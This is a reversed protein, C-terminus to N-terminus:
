RPFHSSFIDHGRNTSISQLWAMGIAVLNAVPTAVWVMFTEGIRPDHAGWWTFGFSYLAAILMLGILTRVLQGKTMPEEEAEPTESDEDDESQELLAYYHERTIGLQGPLCTPDFQEQEANWLLQCWGIRRCHPCYGTGFKTLVTDILQYVTAM